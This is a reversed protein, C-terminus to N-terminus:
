LPYLPASSVPKRWVRERGEIGEKQAKKEQIRQGLKGIVAAKPERVASGAVRELPSAEPAGVPVNERRRGNERGGKLSIRKRM